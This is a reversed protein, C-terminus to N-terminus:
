RSLLALLADAIRDAVLRKAEARTKATLRTITEPVTSGPTHIAFHVEGPVSDENNPDPRGLTGTVGVAYDTAFNAAAADAMAAATEKSYVGFASITEEPVGSREKTLNSYTVLGGPFVASAGETDTLLSAILGATCSEMTSVTLHKEILTKTVREFKEEPTM